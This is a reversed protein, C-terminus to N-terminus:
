PLNDTGRSALRMQVVLYQDQDIHGTDHLLQEGLGYPQATSEGAIERLAPAIVISQGGAVTWDFHMSPLPLFPRATDVRLASSGAVFTQRAEGHRIQPHIAIGVAGDRRPPRSSLELVLQPGTLTQGTLGAPTQVLVAISDTRSPSIPWLRQEGPPLVITQPTTSMSGLVGAGALFQQAAPVADSQGVADADGLLVGVRLGNELWHRRVSGPLRTEDAREWFEDGLQDLTRHSLRVDITPGATAATMRRATQQFGAEPPATPHTAQEVDWRGAGTPLSGCGVMALLGSPVILRTLLAAPRPRPFPPPM